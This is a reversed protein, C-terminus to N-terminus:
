KYSSDNQATIGICSYKMNQFEDVIFNVIVDMLNQSYQQLIYLGYLM